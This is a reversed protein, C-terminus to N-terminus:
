RFSELLLVNLCMLTKFVTGEGLKLYILSFFSNPCSTTYIHTISRGLTPDLHSSILWTRKQSTISRSEGETLLSLFFFRPWYGAMQVSCAQNIFSKNYPKGPFNRKRFVASLGSRALYRWRAREPLWACPLAPNSEDKKKLEDQGSVSSTM